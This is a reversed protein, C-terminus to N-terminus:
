PGARAQREPLPSLDRRLPVFLWLLLYVAVGTGACLVSVVFVLRWIWGDIGTWDALGGCVGGLWRDQDSRRLRNSAASSGADLIRAKARTYEDDSLRGQQHLEALRALEDSLSM